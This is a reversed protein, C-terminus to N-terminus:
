GERFFWGVLLCSVYYVRLLGLYSVKLPLVGAVFARGHIKTVSGRDTLDVPNLQKVPSTRIIVEGGGKPYYGRHFTHSISCYASQIAFMFNLM